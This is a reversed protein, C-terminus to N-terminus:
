LLRKKPNKVKYISEVIDMGAYGAILSLKYDTDYLLGAFMGIAGSAVVTVLFYKLRFQEKRKRAKLVGFSARAVGGIFGFMAPLIYPDLM